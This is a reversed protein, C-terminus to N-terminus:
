ESGPDLIWTEGCRGPRCDLDGSERAVRGRVSAGQSRLRLDEWGLGLSVSEVAM